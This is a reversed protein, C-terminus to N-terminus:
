PASPTAPAQQRQGTETTLRPDSDFVLGLRDARANGEAIQSDVEEPDEGNSLVTADRSALGGRIAKIDADVDQVPHSYPWGQPVWLTRTVDDRLEAYSPIDLM